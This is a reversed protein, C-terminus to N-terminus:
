HLSLFVDKKFGDGLGYKLNPLAGMKEFMGKWIKSSIEEPQAQLLIHRPLLGKCSVWGCAYAPANKKNKPAIRLQIYVALSFQEETLDDLSHLTAMKREDNMRRTWEMESPLGICTSYHPIEKYLTVTIDSGGEYNSEFIECFQKSFNLFESLTIDGLFEKRWFRKALFPRKIISVRGGMQQWKTKQQKTAEM